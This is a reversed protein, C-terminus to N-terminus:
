GQTHAKTEKFIRQLFTRITPQTLEFGLTDLIKREMQLVEERTYTNDTIDCFEDVQPAYIEEYKAAIFLSTIGILQLRNRKISFKSLCRDIFVVSLFLTEPLLKYEQAVEVLWVILVSRMQPDVDCQINSMYMSDIHKETETGYMYEYIQDTYQNCYILDNNENSHISAKKDLKDCEGKKLFWIEDVDCCKNPIKAADLNGRIRESLSSRGTEKKCSNKKLEFIEVKM